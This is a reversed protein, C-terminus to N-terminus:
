IRANMRTQALRMCGGRTANGIWDASFFAAVRSIFAQTCESASRSLRCTRSGLPYQRGLDCNALRLGKIQSMECAQAEVSDADV